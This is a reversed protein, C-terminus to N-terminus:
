FIFFYNGFMLINLNFICLFINYYLYDIIVIILLLFKYIDIYSIFFYEKESRM